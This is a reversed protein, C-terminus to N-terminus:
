TSVEGATARSTSASCALMLKNVNAGVAEVRSLREVTDVLSSGGVVHASREKGDITTGAREELHSLVQIVAQTPAGDYDALKRLESTYTDIVHVGSAMVARAIRANLTAALIEVTGEEDMEEASLKLHFLRAASKFTAWLMGPPVFDFLTRIEGGMTSAVAKRVRAAREVNLGGGALNTRQSSVEPARRTPPLAEYAAFCQKAIAENAIGEEPGLFSAGPVGEVLPRLKLKFDAKTLAYIGKEPVGHIVYWGVAGEVATPAFLPASVSPGTPRVEPPHFEASKLMEAYTERPLAIDPLKVGVRRLQHKLEEVPMSDVMM